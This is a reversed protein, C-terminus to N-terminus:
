NMGDIAKKIVREAYKQTREVVIKKIKASIEYQTWDLDIVDDLIHLIHGEAHGKISNRQVLIKDLNSKKYYTREPYGDEDFKVKEEYIEGSVSIYFGKELSWGTFKGGLIETSKYKHPIVGMKNAYEPFGLIFEKKMKFEEKDLTYVISEVLEDYNKKKNKENVVNNIIKDANIMEFVDM